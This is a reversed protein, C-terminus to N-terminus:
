NNKKTLNNTASIIRDLDNTIHDINTIRKYNDYPDQVENDVDDYITQEIPMNYAKLVMDTLQLCGLACLIGTVLKSTHLKSGYIFNYSLLALSASVLNKYIFYGKIM